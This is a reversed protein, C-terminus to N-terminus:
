RLGAQSGRRFLFALAMGAAVVGLTAPEPVATITLLPRATTTPFSRSDSVYSVTNDAAFMRFSVQSGSRADASFLPTLNLNYTFSGSTAGNYSFTGLNEDSGSLFSPLTSFTIGSTTPSQPTGSGEVWGDNQMWSVGFNGASSANFIANNPAAATLQLSIAQISWAGAGYTADFANRATSLDFKLVTQFEGQSSGPAALSLGGAGGYNNATLNGSPGSTVFADASPNLTFSAGVAPVCLLTTLVSLNFIQFYFRLGTTKM